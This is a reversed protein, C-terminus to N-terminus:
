EEKIGTLAEYRTIGTEKEIWSKCGSDNRYVQRYPLPKTLKHGNIGRALEHKCTCWGSPWQRKTAAPNLMEETYYKCDACKPTNGPIYM